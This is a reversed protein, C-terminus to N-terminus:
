NRNGLERRNWRGLLQPRLMEVPRAIRRVQAELRRVFQRVRRDGQSLVAGHRRDRKADLDAAVAVIEEGQSRRPGALVGDHPPKQFLPRRGFGRRTVPAVDVVEILGVPRPRQGEGLPHTRLKARVDRPEDLLDPRRNGGRQLRVLVALAMLLDVLLEARAAVLGELLQSGPGGRAAHRENARREAPGQRGRLLPLDDVGLGERPQRFVLLPTQPGRDLREVGLEVPDKALQRLPVALRVLPDLRELAAGGLRRDVRQDVLQLLRVPLLRANLDIEGGKLLVDDLVGVIQSPRLLAVLLARQAGQDGAGPGRRRGQLPVAHVHEVAIGLRGTCRDDIRVLRVNWFRIPRISCTAWIPVNVVSKVCMLPAGQVAGVAPVEYDIRAAHQELRECPFAQLTRQARKGDPDLREPFREAQDTGDGQIGLGDRQVDLDHQDALPEEVVKEVLTSGSKRSRNL